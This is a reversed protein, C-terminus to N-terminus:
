KSNGDACGGMEIFSKRWAYIGFWAVGKYAIWARWKAVGDRILTDYFMQDAEEKSWGAPHTRYIYDHAIAARLATLDESPFVLWWLLRPVSAGDSEFHRSVHLREGNWRVKFPHLVTFVDGRENEKHKRLSLHYGSRENSIEIQM